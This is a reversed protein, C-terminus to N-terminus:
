RALSGVYLLMATTAKKNATTATKTIPIVMNSSNSSPACQNLTWIAFCISFNMSGAVYDFLSMRIATVTTSSMRRPAEGDCFNGAGHRRIAACLAFQQLQELRLKRPITCGRDWPIASGIPGPHLARSVSGRAIRLAPVISPNGGYASPLV